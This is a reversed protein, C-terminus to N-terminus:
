RREKSYPKYLGLDASYFLDIFFRFSASVGFCHVDVQFVVSFTLTHLNGTSLLGTVPRAIQFFKEKIVNILLSRFRGFVFSSPWLIKSSYPSAM